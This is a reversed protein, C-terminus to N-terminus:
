SDGTPTLKLDVFSVLVYAFWGFGAVVFLHWQSPSANVYTAAIM